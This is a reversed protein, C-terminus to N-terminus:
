LQERTGSGFGYSPFRRRDATNYDYAGPGPTDKPKNESNAFRFKMSIAPAQTRSSDLRPSYAWSHPVNTNSTLKQLKNGIAFRPREYDFCPSKKTYTGPGPTLKM